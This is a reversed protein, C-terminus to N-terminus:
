IIIRTPTIIVDLCLDHKDVIIVNNQQEDFAIGLMIPKLFHKKFKFSYDYFGGGMGMRYKEDNFAVLPVIVVDLEWPALLENINYIPESIGFSNNQYKNTDEAFWLCHKKFPHVIPLYTSFYMNIDSTDTEHDLSIFSSIKVDSSFSQEIYSILNNSIQKSLTYKNKIDKQTKLLNKRIINKEM